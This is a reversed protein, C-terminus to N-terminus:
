SLHCVTPQRQFSAKGPGYLAEFPVTTAVSPVLPYGPTVSLGPIIGPANIAVFDWMEMMAYGASVPPPICTVHNPASGTGAPVAVSWCRGGGVSVSGDTVNPDIALAGINVTLPTRGDTPQTPDAEAYDTPDFSTLPDDRQEGVPGVNGALSV